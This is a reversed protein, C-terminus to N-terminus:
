EAAPALEIVAKPLFMRVKTTTTVKVRGGMIAEVTLGTMEEASILDTYKKQAKAKINVVSGIALVNKSSASFVVTTKRYVYDNRIAALASNVCDMATLFNSDNDPSIGRILKSYLSQANGVLRGLKAAIRQNKDLGKNAEKSKAAWAKDRALIKAAMEALKEPTNHKTATTVPTTPAALPAPAAAPAAAPAPVIEANM